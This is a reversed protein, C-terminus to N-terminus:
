RRPGQADAVPDEDVPAGDQDGHLLDDDAVVDGEGVLDVDHVAVAVADLAGCTSAGTRMPSPVQTPARAIIM